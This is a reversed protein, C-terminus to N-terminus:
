KNGRGEGPRPLHEYESHLGGDSLLPHSRSRPDVEHALETQSHAMSATPRPPRASYLLGALLLALALGTGALAAMLGLSLGASAVTTTDVSLLAIGISLLNWFGHIAISGAYLGVARWWRGRFVQYWALGMLAGTLCHLLTAGLRVVVVLAWAQLGAATNLLGEVLAFGAGGGLGWLLAQARSPRRYAMLPVGVAKVAEEILPIAGAVVALIGAVIAPSRLLPLLAEPDELPPAAQLWQTLHELLEPGGPRLAVSFMAMLALGVLLSAELVFALPTALLAGAGLQLILERWRTIGSLARGALALILLPPLCAALVHFLPFTAAPLLDLSLIAQGGALALLFLLALPWAKRPRFPRSPQGQIARFAQWAVALGLGVTVIAISFGVTVASVLTGQGELLSGLTFLAGLVVGIAAASLGGILALARALGLFPREGVRAQSTHPSGSTQVAPEGGM